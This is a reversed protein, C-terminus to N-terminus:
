LFNMKMGIRKWLRHARQENYLPLGGNACVDARYRFLCFPAMTIVIEYCDLAEDEEILYYYEGGMKKSVISLGFTSLLRQRYHYFTRKALGRGDDIRKEIWLENLEEYTLSKKRVLFDILWGAKFLVNLSNM